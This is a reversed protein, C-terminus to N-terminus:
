EVMTAAKEPDFEINVDMRILGRDHPKTSLSAPNEAIPCV